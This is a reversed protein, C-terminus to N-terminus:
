EKIMWWESVALGGAEIDGITVVYEKGEKFKFAHEPKPILITGATLTPKKPPEEINLSISINHFNEVFIKYYENWKEISWGHKKLQYAELSKGEIRSFVLDFIFTKMINEILYM